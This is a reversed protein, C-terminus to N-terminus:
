RETVLVLTWELFIMRMGDFKGGPCLKLRLM